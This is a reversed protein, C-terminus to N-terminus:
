PILPASSIKGNVPEASIVPLKITVPETSKKYEETLVEVATQDVPPAKVVALYSNAPAPVCSAAIAKPPHDFVM